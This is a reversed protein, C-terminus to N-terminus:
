APWIKGAVIRALEILQESRAAADDAYLKLEFVLRGKSAKAVLENQASMDQLFSIDGIDLRRDSGQHAWEGIRIQEFGEDSSAKYIILDLFKVNMGEIHSYQCHEMAVDKLLAAESTDKDQGGDNGPIVSDVQERSLLSCVHSPKEDSASATPRAAAAPAESGDSCAIIAVAAGLTLCLNRLHMNM